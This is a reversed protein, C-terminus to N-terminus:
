ILLLKSGTKRFYYFGTRNFVRCQEIVTFLKRLFGKVMIRLNKHTSGDVIYVISTDDPSWSADYENATDDTLQTLGTVQPLESGSASQVLILVTLIFIISTKIISM